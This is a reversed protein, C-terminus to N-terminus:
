GAVGFGRVSGGELVQLWQNLLNIVSKFFFPFSEGVARRFSSSSLSELPVTYLPATISRRFNASIIMSVYTHIYNFPKEPYYSGVILRDMESSVCM